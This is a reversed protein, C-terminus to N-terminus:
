HHIWLGKLSKLIALVEYLERGPSFLDFIRSMSYIPRPSSLLKLFRFNSGNTLLGYSPRDGNPSGLMYSLLQPRGVDLALQARKSEIVVLWLADALVLVDITGRILAPEALDETAIAVEISPETRFHFPETYFDALDLLHALVTIKVADELVPPHRLLYSFNTKVRDLRARDAASLLALDAKCEPFFDPDDSLQLGWRDLDQFQAAAITQSM